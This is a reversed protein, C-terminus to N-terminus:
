KAKKTITIATADRITTWSPEQKKYVGLGGEWTEDAVLEDITSKYECGEYVFLEDGVSFVEGDSIRQVSLIRYDKNMNEM